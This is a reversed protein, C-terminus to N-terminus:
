QRGAARRKCAERLVEVRLAREDHCVCRDTDESYACRLRKPLPMDPESRSPVAREAETSTQIPAQQTIPAQATRSPQLKTTQTITASVGPARAEFLEDVASQVSLFVLVAALLSLVVGLAPLVLYGLTSMAVARLTTAVFARAGQVGLSALHAQNTARGPELRASDIADAAQALWERSLTETPLSRIWRLLELLSFVREPKSTKFKAMGTLVVAPQFVERTLGTVEELARLHGENQRLPNPMKSKGRRYSQTWFRDNAKGFLRGSLHKTELVFIGFRSLVVHDIQATGKSTRLTVDNLIRYDRPDLKSRLYRQVKLEGIAGKIAPSRLLVGIVSIAMALFVM